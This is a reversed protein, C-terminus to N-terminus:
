NGAGSTPRPQEGGGRFFGQWFMLTDLVNLPVDAQPIGFGYSLALINLSYFGVIDRTLTRLFKLTDEMKEGFSALQDAAFANAHVFQSFHQYTSWFRDPEIGFTDLIDQKTLTKDSFGGACNNRLTSNLTQFIAHAQIVKKREDIQQALTPLDPNAPNIQQVMQLRQQAIFQARVLEEFELQAKTRASSLYQVAIFNEMLARASQSILSVAVSKFDANYPSQPMFSLVLGASQTSQDFILLADRQNTALDPRTTLRSLLQQGYEFLASLLILENKIDYLIDNM